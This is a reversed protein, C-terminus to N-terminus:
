KRVPFHVVDVEEGFPYKRRVTCYEPTLEITNYCQTAYGRVKLSSVTGANVLYFNEFRWEHPVHKHGCLVLDVDQEALM